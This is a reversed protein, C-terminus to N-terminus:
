QRGPAPPLQPTPIDVPENTSSLEILWGNSAPETVHIQVTNASREDMWLDVLYSQDTKLTSGMLPNLKEGTVEGKLHLTDRTQITERGVV